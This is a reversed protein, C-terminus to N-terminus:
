RYVYMIISNQQFCFFLQLHVSGISIQKNAIRNDINHAESLAEKVFPGDVIANLVGNVEMIRNITAEILQTSTIEGKKIAAALEVASKTLFENNNKLPPCVKKEGFYWEFFIESIKDKLVLVVSIIYFLLKWSSDRLLRTFRNPQYQRKQVSFCKHVWIYDNYPMYRLNFKHICKITTAIMKVTAIPHFDSTTWDSSILHFYLFIFLIFM